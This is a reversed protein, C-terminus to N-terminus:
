KDRLSDVTLKQRYRKQRIRDGTKKDPYKKPRGGKNDAILRSYEQKNKDEDPLAKFMKSISQKSVLQSKAAASVSGHYKILDVWDSCSLM